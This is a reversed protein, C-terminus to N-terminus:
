TKYQLNFDDDLMFYEFPYGRFRQKWFSEVQQISSQMDKGNIRAAMFRYAYPNIFALVPGIKTQLGHQHYDTMVGVVQGSDMGPTKLLKGVAEEPKWGILKCATENLLVGHKLDSPFDKSLDRGAKIKIGLTKVYDHDIPIVEMTLTQDATFGQPQVIQGGWGIRGPMAAASTISSI